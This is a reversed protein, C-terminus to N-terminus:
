FCCAITRVLRFRRVSRRAISTAPRGIPNNLFKFKILKYSVQFVILDSRQRLKTVPKCPEPGYVLTHHQSLGGVTGIRIDSEDCNDRILSCDWYCMSGDGFSLIVREDDVWDLSELSRTAGSKFAAHIRNKALNYRICIGRQYGILLEDPHDM